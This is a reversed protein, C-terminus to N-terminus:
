SCICATNLEFSWRRCRNQQNAAMWRFNLHHLLLAVVIKLESMAFNQGICNRPGASFPIFAHPSRKNVNEPLFRSPDYVEPDDWVHSSHHLNYINIRIPLGKELTRGDPLQIPRTTIRSVLPVAPNLRLSEKICMTLYTLNALDDWELDTCGKRSFLEDIEEQCIRQHEPNSALNYLCWAIGSATTDHGEFMFTDVEDKIEQDTLGQGDEDKVSLLIDLFNVHKRGEVQTAVQNEHHLSKRKRIVDSSYAHLSKLARRLQRGDSTLNYYIFDNYHLLNYMRKIVLVSLESVSKIYPDMESETQCHVDLGFICKMLSDLTVLSAHHTIEVSGRECLHSLKDVLVKCCENFIKAYPKLIEFHFGPTLLKRNRAWKAGTSLLLGDGLWPRITGYLLDDKPEATSLIAKLPEPHGCEFYAHFPGLWYPYGYKYKNTWQVRKDLGTKGPNMLHLHGFLWHKSEGPFNALAKELRRRKALAGLLVTAIKSAIAAIIVVLVTKVLM